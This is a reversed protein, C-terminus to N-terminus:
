KDFQLKAQFEALEQHRKWDHLVFGFIISDTDDQTFSIDCFNFCTNVLKFRSSFLCNGNVLPEIPLSFIAVRVM